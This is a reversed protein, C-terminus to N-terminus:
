TAALNWGAVKVLYDLGFNNVPQTMLVQRGGRDKATDMVWEGPKIQRMFIVSNVGHAALGKEGAPRAGIHGFADVIDKSDIKRDVAKTGATLFVHGKHRFIMNNAWDAHLAKITPWDVWGEFPSGMTTQKKRSEQVSQRAALFFEGKDQGFVQNAFYTQVEEWGKDFLDGVMWDNPTIQSAFQKAVRQYSEFDYVYEATVIGAEAVAPFEQVSAYYTDDTDLMYFHGPTKTKVYLDAISLWARTKGAGPGGYDLIRERGPTPPRM